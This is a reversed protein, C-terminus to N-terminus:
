AVTSEVPIDSEAPRSIRYPFVFKELVHHYLALDVSVHQHIKERLALSTQSLRPRQRTVNMRELATDIAMGLHSRIMGALTPMDETVGVAAFRDLNEVAQGFLEDPSIHQFQRRYTLQHGFAIQWSQANMVDRIVYENDIASLFGDFTLRKAVAPGASTKPAERWYHYLSIIRDYPNRLVTVLAADLRSAAAHSLHADFLRYQSLAGLDQPFQEEFQLPCIEEHRYFPQLTNRLWTGGTKGIHLIAVRPASTM